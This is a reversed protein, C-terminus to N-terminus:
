QTCQKCEVQTPKIGQSIPYSLFPKHLLPITFMQFQVSFNLYDSNIETICKKNYNTILYKSFILIKTFVNMLKKLYFIISFKSSVNKFYVWVFTSRFIQSRDNKLIRIRVKLTRRENNILKLFSFYLYLFLYHPYLNCKSICVNLM